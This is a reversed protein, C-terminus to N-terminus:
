ITVLLCLKLRLRVAHVARARSGLFSDQGAAVSRTLGGSVGVLPKVQSCLWLQTGVMRMYLPKIGFRDRAAFLRREEADWIAFAFM